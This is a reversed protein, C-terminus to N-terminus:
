DQCHGVNEDPTQLYLVWGTPEPSRVPLQVIRESMRVSLHRVSGPLLLRYSGTSEPTNGIHFTSSGASLSADSGSALVELVAHDSSHLVIELRGARQCRDIQLSLSDTPILSVQKPPPEPQPVSAISGASQPRLLLDVARLQDAAWAMVPQLVEESFSARVSPVGLAGALALIVVVAAALRRGFARRVRMQRDAAAHKRRAQIREWVAAWDPESPAGEKRLIDLVPDQDTQDIPDMM